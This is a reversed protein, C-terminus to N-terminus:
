SNNSYLSVFQVCHFGVCSLMKVCVGVNPISYISLNNWKFWQFFVTFASLTFVARSPLGDTSFCHLNIINLLIVVASSSSFLQFVILTHASFFLRHHQARVGPYYNSDGCYYVFFMRRKEELLVHTLWDDTASAPGTLNCWWGSFLAWVCPHTCMKCFIWVKIKKLFVGCGDGM